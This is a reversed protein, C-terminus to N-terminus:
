LARSRIFIFLTTYIRTKLKAKKKKQQTLDRRYEVINRQEVALVGFAETDPCPEDSFGSRRYTM